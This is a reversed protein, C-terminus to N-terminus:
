VTDFNWMKGSAGLCHPTPINPTPLIRKVGPETPWPLGQPKHLAAAQNVKELKEHEGIWM